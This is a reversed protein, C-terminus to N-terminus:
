PECRPTPPAAKSDLSSRRLSIPARKAARGPALASNAGKVLRIASAMKTARPSAAASNVPPSVLSPRRSLAEALNSQSGFRSTNARKLSSGSSSSSSLSSLSRQLTATSARRKLERPSTADAGGDASAPEASAHSQVGGPAGKGRTLLRVASSAGASLDALEQTQVGSIQDLRRDLAKNAAKNEKNRENCKQLMSEQIDPFRQLVISFGAKTLVMTDISTRARVSAGCKGQAKLLAGEGVFDGVGLTATVFMLDESVIIDVNGKLIFYMASGITHKRMLWEGQPFSQFSLVQVISSIFDAGRDKFLPVSNVADRCIHSMVETRLSPNLDEISEQIEVGQTKAWLYEFYHDARSHLDLTLRQHTMYRKVSYHTKRFRVESADLNSSLQGISGIIFAVFFIGLFWVLLTLVHEEITEPKIDRGLGTLNAMAYYIARLYLAWGLDDTGIVSRSVDGDAFCRDAPYLHRSYTMVNPSAFDVFGATCAVAHTCMFFWWVLSIIRRLSFNPSAGAAFQYLEYSLASLELTRLLRLGRAMAASFFLAANGGLAVGAGLCVWDVPVLALSARRFSRSHRYRHGILQADKVLIGQDNVYALRLNLPVDIVYVLDALLDLVNVATLSAPYTLAFAGASPSGRFRFAVGYMWTTLNWLLAAWLLTVWALRARTDPLLVLSYTPKGGDPNDSRSLVFGMWERFSERPGAKKAEGHVPVLNTTADEDVVLSAARSSLVEVAEAFRVNTDGRRLNPAPAEVVVTCDRPTAHPSCDSSPVSSITSATDSREVQQPAKPAVRISSSSNVHKLVHTGARKLKRGLSPPPARQAAGAAMSERVRNLWRRGYKHLLEAERGKRLDQDIRERVLERLTATTDPYYPLIEALATRTLSFLDCFTTAQVTNGRPKSILLGEGFYDGHRLKAVRVPPQGVLVDLEGRHVFFMEDGMEGTTFIVEGEAAIRPRLRDVLSRVFGEDAGLFFPVKEVMGRTLQMMVDTRLSSPLTHLVRLDDFGQHNRWRYTYFNLVRREVEPPLRHQKLMRWVYLQKTQFLSEAESIEDVITSVSGIIVAFVVIGLFMVVVTFLSELWTQPEEGDSLGTMLGLTYYVSDFFQMTRRASSGTYLVAAPGSSNTLLPEMLAPFFLTSGHMFLLKGILFWTCAAIQAIVAMFLALAFLRRFHPPVRWETQVVKLLGPLEAVRVLKLVRSFSHTWRWPALSVIVEGYDQAVAAPWAYELPALRLVDLPLAALIHAVFRWSRLYHRKIDRQVMVMNNQSDVYGLHLSLAIHLLLLADFCANILDAPGLGADLTGGDVSITAPDGCTADVLAPLSDFFSTTLTVEFFLWIVCALQLLNWYKISWHNPHVVFNRWGRKQLAMRALFDALMEDGKKDESSRREAQARSDSSSRRDSGRRSPSPESDRRTSGRQGGSFALGSKFLQQLSKRKEAPERGRGEEVRESEEEPVGGRGGDRTSARSGGGSLRGRAKEWYSARRPIPTADRVLPRPARKQPPQAAQANAGDAGSRESLSMSHTSSARAM